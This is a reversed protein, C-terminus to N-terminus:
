KRMTIKIMKTEMTVPSYVAHLDQHGEDIVIQHGWRASCRDLSCSDVGAFQAFTEQADTLKSTVAKTAFHSVNSGDM